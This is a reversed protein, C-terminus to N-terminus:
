GGLAPDLLDQRSTPIELGYCEIQTVNSEFALPGAYIGSLYWESDRFQEPMAAAPSQYPTTLGKQKAEIHGLSRCRRVM